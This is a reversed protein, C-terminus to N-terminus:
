EKKLKEFLSPLYIFYIGSRELIILPRKKMLADINIEYIGEKPIKVTEIGFKSRKIKRKPKREVKLKRRGKKRRTKRKKIQKKLEKELSTHKTKLEKEMSEIQKADAKTKLYLFFTSGCKCGTLVSSDNDQYIIGCRVCKHM